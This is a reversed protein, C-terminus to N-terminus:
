RLRKRLADRLERAAALGAGDVLDRHAEDLVRELAALAEELRTLAASHEEREAECAALGFSAFAWPVVVWPDTPSTPVHAGLVEIVALFHDMAAERRAHLAEDPAGSARLVAQAERELEGARWRGWWTPRLELMREIAAEAASLERRALECRAELYALEARLIPDVAPPAAIYPVAYRLAALAETVRADRLRSRAVGAWAEVLQQAPEEEGLPRGDPLERALEEWGARTDEGAADALHLAVSQAEWHRPRLLGGAEVSAASLELCRAIWARAQSLTSRRFGNWLMRAGEYTAIRVSYYRMPDQDFARLKAEAVEIARSLMERARESEGRSSLLRAFDRLCPFLVGLARFQAPEQERWRECAAVASEYLRVAAEHAGRFVALQARQSRVAAEIRLRDIAVAELDAEALQLLEDAEAFAREEMLHAALTFRGWVLDDRVAREAIGRALLEELVALSARASAVSAARDGLVQQTVSLSRLARAANRGHGRPDSAACRTLEDVARQAPALSDAFRQALHLAQVQARLAQAHLGLYALSAADSALLADAESEAEAATRLAAQVQGLVTHVESLTTLARCRGTRLLPDEARERLWIDYFALADQALASRLAEHQPLRRLDDDNARALLAEVTSLASDFGVQEARVAARTRWSSWALAAATVLLALCLAIVPLRHRRVYKRLRYGLGLRGALVPKGELHRLVDDALERVTAYRESKERRVARLAIWDLDGRVQSAIKRAQTAGTPQKGASQTIRVSPLPPESDSEFVAGRPWPLEGTLLEYLLVGLAFVDTRADIEDVRGLAQEPSMYGPTGMARGTETRVPREADHAGEIVAKAIGFDIIKVLPGASSAVVLVNGPKLDRHVVGRTHAHEVGRCLDVFVRLRSATDLAERRCFETVPAGEIYELVFYPRGDPLLGADYIQAIAPHSLSALVQQELFFRRLLQAEAHHARLVKVAVQRVIPQEQRCLYVTGFAGEGLRRIVRHGAIEEPDESGGRAPFSEALLREAGRIKRLLKRLAADHEPHEAAFRACLADREVDVAALLEAGCRERLDQPLAGGEAAGSLRPEM